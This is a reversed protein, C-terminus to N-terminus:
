FIQENGWVDIGEETILFPHKYPDHKTFRMKYVTITRRFENSVNEYGLMIVSDSVFQCVNEKEGEGGTTETILVSTVEKEKLFRCFRFLERRLTEKDPYYLGVASLSDVVVRSAGFSHIYKDLFNQITRLSAIEGRIEEDMNCSKRIEGFDILGIRRDKEYDEFDSCFRNVGRIVNSRSEELALFIGKEDFYRTGNYIFQAGFLSKGSGTPGVLLNVTNKPLGGSILDDLGTIGTPVRM